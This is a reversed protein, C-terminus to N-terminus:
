YSEIGQRANITHLLQALVDAREAPFAPSEHRWRRAVRYVLGSTRSDPACATALVDLILTRHVADTACANLWHSVPVAWHQEPRHLAESWGRALLARVSASRILRVPDALSLFLVSDSDGWQGQAMGTGLRELMRRYLRNDSRALRLTADRADALVQGKARRALHHLRVLAQDPHSRAMVNSCVLVLVQGLGPSTDPAKSWDYVQQRFYRGHQDDALGHALLQAADAVKRTSTGGRTWRDVLWRLDEPRDCRLVQDAFRKVAPGREAVDLDPAAMCLQFWDRLQRRVDPLYTWFHSRVASDYGPLPFRVRSDASVEAGIASFEAHM